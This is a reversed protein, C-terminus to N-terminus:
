IMNQFYRVLVKQWHHHLAHPVTESKEESALYWEIQSEQRAQKPMRLHKLLLTEEATPECVKHLEM